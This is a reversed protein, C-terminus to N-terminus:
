TADERGARDARGMRSSHSAVPGDDAKGADSRWRRPRWNQVVKAVATVLFLQGVLAELVAISQAPNGAPVMDGYGTTTMTVFSFFLARSLSPDGAHGFLPGPQLAALCLYTFGFAMGILLYAALAGFVTDRNVGVHSGIDRVISFPAILYLVSAVLFTAGILQRSDVVVNTAAAVLALVFVVAAVTRLRRRARSTRLVQWVTGTQVLLLVTVIWRQGPLLALVYTALILVLVLGYGPRARRRPGGASALDPDTM